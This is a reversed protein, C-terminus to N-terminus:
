PQVVEISLQGMLPALKIFDNVWQGDDMLSAAVTIHTADYATGAPLVADLDVWRGDLWAQTWMHYGFVQQREDFAPVYMLGSATRSPIGDARLMAALLVAHESCDGQRTKCVESATAFGVDLSKEDIYENVFARMAEAREAPDDGLGRVARDKLAVIAPDTGDIIISRAVAPKTAERGAAKNLDVVLTGKRPNIRAFTQSSTDPLTPLEGEKVSLTYVARKLKRPEKLPKDVTILTDNMLEAGAVKSKALAKDAREQVMRLGMMDITTRLPRGERDVHVVAKADPMVSVSTEVKWAPTQKGGVTIVEEGLVKYRTTVLRSFMTTDYTVTEFEKAGKALQAKIHREAQLPTLWDQAPKPMVRTTQRGMQSSTIHIGDPKFEYASSMAIASAAMEFAAEIPEHAKSETFSTNIDMEIPQGLRQMVIHTKTETTVRDGKRTERLVSWGSPQENVLMRFWVEEARPEAAALPGSTMVIVLLGCWTKVRM